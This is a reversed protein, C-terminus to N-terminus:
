HSSAALDQYQSLDAGAVNTRKKCCCFYLAGLTVLVGIWIVVGVIVGNWFANEKKQETPPKSGTGDENFQPPTPIQIDDPVVAANPSEDNNAHINGNPGYTFGAVPCVNEIL